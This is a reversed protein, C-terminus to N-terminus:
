QQLILQVAHALDDCIPAQYFPAEEALKKVSNEGKGTKVLLSEIGARHAAQLDRISDGIVLAQQPLCAFDSLAEFMMAPKPKRCACEDDPGHPCFYIKDIAVQHSELTLALKDHMKELTDLDLYGRAIGSQNSAIVVTKGAQKLAVVADISGPIFIFEDVTRIFNESDFNIVGDRDLIILQKQKFDISM